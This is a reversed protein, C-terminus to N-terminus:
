ALAAVFGARLREATSAPVRVGDTWLTSCLRGRYGVTSFSIVQNPTAALNGQMTSVWAPDDSPDLIGMNTVSVAPPAATIAARVLDAGKDLDTVGDLRALHFFLEGEGRDLATQTTEAIERALPWQEDARVRYRHALVGVATATPRDPDRSPVSRDVPINLQLIGEETACVTRAVTRLWASAMSSFVRVGEERARGLVVASAETSFPIPQLLSTREDSAAPWEEPMPTGLERNRESLGRLLDLLARRDSQWPFTAGSEPPLSVGGQPTLPRGDLFRLFAQLEQLGGRGDAVSHHGLLYIFSRGEEPSTLYHLATTRELGFRTDADRATVRSWESSAHEETRFRVRDAGGDAITLDTTPMLRPYIRESCFARWREEVLDPPLCVDLEASLIPNTAWALDLFAYYKEAATM